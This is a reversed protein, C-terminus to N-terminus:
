FLHIEVCKLRMKPLLKRSGTVKVHEDDGQSLVLKHSGELRIRQIDDLDVTKSVIAAAASSNIMIALTLGFVPLPRFYKITNM